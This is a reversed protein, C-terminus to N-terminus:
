ALSQNRKPFCGKERSFLGENLTSMENLVSKVSETVIGMLQSETIRVVNRKRNEYLGRKREMYEDEDPAFRDEDRELVDAFDEPHEEAYEKIAANIKEPSINLTQALEELEEKNAAYADDVYPEGGSPETFYDGSNYATVGGDVIIDIEEPLECDDTPEFDVNLYDLINDLSIYSNM